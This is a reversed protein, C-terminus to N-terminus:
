YHKYRNQIYQDQINQWRGTISRLGDGTIRSQGRTFDDQMYLDKDTDFTKPGELLEIFDNGTLRDAVVGRRRPEVLLRTKPRLM